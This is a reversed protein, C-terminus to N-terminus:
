LDALMSQVTEDMDVGQEFTGNALQAKVEAVLDARVGQPKTADRAREVFAVDGSLTVSDRAPERTPAARGKTPKAPQVAQLPTTRTVKM